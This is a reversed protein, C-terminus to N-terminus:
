CSTSCLLIEIDVLGGPDQKLHFTADPNKRAWNRACHAAAHLGIDHSLVAPDRQKGWCKMAQDRQIRRRAYGLGRDCTRADLAQHEWTWADQKQYRHFSKRRIVLTGSAGLPRLRMDIDYLKRHLDAHQAAGAGEPWTARLVCQQETPWNNWGHNGERQPM